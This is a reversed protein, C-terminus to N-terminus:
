VFNGCFRNTPGGSQRASIHFGSEYPGGTRRPDTKYHRAFSALVTPSRLLEELMQSPAEAFDMEPSLGSAGAWQQQGGLMWHMLHGFEHFFTEVDGYDNLGPDTATPTPFNCLLAAEPLQKGRIGDLVQFMAAHSYKGARPHMDLYFRGIPKGNDFVDWTEVSSAWGPTNKEQQFSVHFFNAAVNLIGQKVEAYPFYPRVSQSDFNYQSRRVLEPYYWNDYDWLETAGPEDKQKEALLMALEKQVDPHSVTNLQQIFSAINAATGIMKDAANYDAWSQYGLLTAIQYRTKMMDILVSRNKPYARDLFASMLRRRLDANKAFQMAPFFDPYDTTIRIKGDAGPKHLAIYDEPLGDLESKSTIEVSRQDDDINRGFQSQENTLQENLQKLQARIADDKDVGALRFELLTRQIYYRTAPDAKSVDIKALAAYVDRNLSLETQAASAKELMAMARDRFAADPHAEQMLGAFYTAANIHRVAEDYPALTNKVTREGKVAVLSAIASQAKELHDNETKEFAAVDPKNAWLPPQSNLLDQATASSVFLAVLVVMLCRLSAM